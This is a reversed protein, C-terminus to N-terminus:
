KLLQRLNYYYNEYLNGWFTQQMSDTFTNQLLETLSYKIRSYMKECVPPPIDYRYIKVIKMKITNHIISPM